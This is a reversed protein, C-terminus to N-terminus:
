YYIVEREVIYKTNSTCYLIEKRIWNSQKDYTYSYLETDYTGVWATLNGTQDYENSHSHMLEGEKDYTNGEIIRGAEDRTLVYTYILEGSREYSREQIVRGAYDNVYETINDLYGTGTYGDSEILYNNKDYTNVYQSLRKMHGDYRTNVVTNGISDYEYAMVKVLNDARDYFRTETMPLGEEEPWVNKIIEELDGEPGYVTEEILNGNRDFTRINRSIIRNVPRKGGANIVEFREETVEKVKGRLEYLELENDITHAKDSRGICSCVLLLGIFLPVFFRKCM